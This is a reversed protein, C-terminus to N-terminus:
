NGNKHSAFIQNLKEAQSPPPAQPDVIKGEPDILIFRPLISIKYDEAFESEFSAPALLQVGDLEHKKIMDIWREKRNIKDFSIGVIVINKGQWEKKLKKLHPIEEICPKCWSAWLDLYVYSGKFDSLSTNDGKYNEYDEFTPSLTGKSLEGQKFQEEAYIELRKQIADESANEYYSVFITDAKNPINDIFIKKERDLEVLLSDKKIKLIDANVINFFPTKLYNNKAYTINESYDGSFSISKKINLKDWTINLDYGNRAFFPYLKMENLVYILGSKSLRISDSFSGDPNIKIKKKGKSDYYVSLSDQDNNMIEGSLILYEDNSHQEKCCIFICLVCLM